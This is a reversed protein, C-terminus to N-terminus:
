EVSIGPSTLLGSIFRAPDARLSVAFRAPDGREVRARARDRAAGLPSCAVHRSRHRHNVAGDGHSRAPPGQKCKCFEEGRFSAHAPDDPKVGHVVSKWTGPVSRAFRTTHSPPRDVCTRSEHAQAVKGVQVFYMRVNRYFCIAHLPHRQEHTGGLVRYHDGTPEPAAEGGSRCRQFGRLDEQQDKGTALAAGGAAVGRFCETVMAATPGQVVCNTITWIRSPQNRAGRMWPPEAVLPQYFSRM